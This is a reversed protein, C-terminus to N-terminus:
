LSFDMALEMNHHYKSMIPPLPIRPTTKNHDTSRITEKVQIITIQSGYIAEARGIVNTTILFNRIQNEQIFIKLTQTSPWGVLQQLIGSEDAGKIERRHFCSKNSDVTNLFIYYTTKEESFAENKTNFYYIGAGCQKSIIRTGNHLHVNILTDLETDITIRSNSAVAAFSLINGLTKENLFVEFPLM